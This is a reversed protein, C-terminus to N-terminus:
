RASRACRFGVDSYSFYPPRKGRASVRMEDLQSTSFSAGRVVKKVVNSEAPDFSDEPGVPRTIPTSNYFDARYWDHCWEWVNGTLDYLGYRNATLSAVSQTPAIVGDSVTPKRALVAHRFFNTGDGWGFLQREMGGRAAFEWEAETPLRKHLWNAYALADLWSVHVVPHKERGTISSGPGEPQRWNAGPVFRWASNSAPDVSNAAQWQFVFSGPATNTGLPGYHLGRNPQQEASTVHKTAGVFRAFQENTVETRDIWFGDVTVSHPPREDPHGKDSGMLFAGGPIWAEADAAPLASTPGMLGLATRKTHSRPGQFRMTLLTGVTVAGLVVVLAILFQKTSHDPKKPQQSM